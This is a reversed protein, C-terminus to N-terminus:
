SAEADAKKSEDLAAIAQDIERLRKLLRDREMMLRRREPETESLPARIRRKFLLIDQRRMTPRIVGEKLARAREEVTLTTIQYCTESATPLTDPPVEGAEVFRAVSMLKNATQHSFPLDSAVMAMFEGHQLRSKATLLYRGILLFSEQSEAWARRIEAAFEERALLKGPDRLPALRPAPMDGPSLIEEADEHTMIRPAPKRAM